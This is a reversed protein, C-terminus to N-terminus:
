GYRAVIFYCAAVVVMGAIGISLLADAFQDREGRGEQVVLEEVVGDLVEAMKTESFERKVRERGRRGMDALEKENGDKLVFEMRETWAGVDEADRLWGTEGDVITELPGGTNAALVSVDAYM